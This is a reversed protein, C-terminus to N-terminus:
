IKLNREVIVQPAIRLSAYSVPPEKKKQLTIPLSTM